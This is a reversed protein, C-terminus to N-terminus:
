WRKPPPKKFSQLLTYDTVQEKRIIDDLDKITKYIEYPIKYEPLVKSIYELHELPTPHPDVRRHTHFLKKWDWKNLNFIEKITKRSLTKLSEPELMKEFEPWDNGALELYHKKLTALQNEMQFPRSYWDRDFVVQHISPRIKELTNKYYPLLDFIQYRSDNHEYQLSNTIDVM